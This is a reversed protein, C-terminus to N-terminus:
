TKKKRTVLWIVLALVIIVLFLKLFDPLVPDQDTDPESSEATDSTSSTNGESPPAPQEGDSQPKEGVQPKDNPEDRQGQPASGDQATSEGEADDASPAVEGSGGQPAQNAYVVVVDEALADYGIEFGANKTETRVIGDSYHFLSAASPRILFYFYHLKPDFKDLVGIWPGKPSSNWTVVHKNSGDVMSLSAGSGALVVVVPIKGDRTPKASLTLTPDKALIVLLEEKLADIESVKNEVLVEAASKEDKLKENGERLSLVAERMDKIGELILEDPAATEIDEFGSILKEEEALLKFKHERVADVQSRTLKRQMDAELLIVSQQLRALEASSSAFDNQEALSERTEERIKENAKGLYLTLLLVILIVIGIVSTIIDQFAFFGPKAGGHRKVGLAM